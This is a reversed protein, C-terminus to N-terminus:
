TINNSLDSCDQLGNTARNGELRRGEDIDFEEVEGVKVILRYVVDMNDSGSGLYFHENNLSSELGITDWKTINNGEVPHMLDNLKNRLETDLGGLLHRTIIRQLDTTLEVDITKSVLFSKMSYQAVLLLEM